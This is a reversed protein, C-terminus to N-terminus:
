FSFFTTPVMLFSKSRQRWTVQPVNHQTEELWRKRDKLERRFAKKVEKLQKKGANPYIFRISQLIEEDPRFFPHINFAIWMNVTTAWRDNEVLYRPSHPLFIGVVFMIFAVTYGVTFISTWGTSGHFFYGTLFGVGVRFHEVPWVIGCLCASQCASRCSAALLLKGLVDWLNLQRV